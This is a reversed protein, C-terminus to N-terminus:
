LGMLKAQIAFNPVSKKVEKFTGVKILKGNEMFALQDAREVTSLRHAIMIVTVKNKLNHIAQTFELETKGDLSSTAEDLVLIKPKTILARAIGIRQRQGGSLRSGAEGVLTELGEPLSDVFEALQAIELAERIQSENILYSDYGLALNQRISKEILFTNQPVYGICGPWKEILEKPTYDNIKVEGKEPDILGLIIDILTSKGAGSPGVLAFTTGFPIDFSVDKVVTNKQGNSELYSFSVNKVNISETPFDLHESIMTERHTYNSGFNKSSTIGSNRMTELTPKAIALNNKVTISGQQIRLLAPAIRTAAALFIVLNAIASTASNQAFQVASIVLLGLIMTTEMIYKSINPMFSMEASLNALSFKGESIQKLYWSRRNRVIAERYSSVVEGVYQNTAISLDITKQGIEQARKKMVQYLILAVGGFLLFSIIAMTINVFFLAFSMAFFLTLDSIMMVITGTVGLSLAGVGANISFLLEHTSSKKMSNLDQSLLIRTLQSAINASRWSMYYLIKRTLYISAITKLVFLSTAIFGLIAVQNQFKVGDLNLLRLLSLIRGQAPQSQIGSVSLSGIVGILAVGVLDLLTLVSQIIATLALKFRDSKPFIAFSSFLLSKDPAFMKKDGKM